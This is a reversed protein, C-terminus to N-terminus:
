PIFTLSGNWSLGKANTKITISENDKATISALNKMFLFQSQIIGSTCLPIELFFAHEDYAAEGVMDEIPNDRIHQYVISPFKVLSLFGFM